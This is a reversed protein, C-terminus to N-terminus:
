QTLLFLAVGGDPDMQSVTFPASTLKTGITTHNWLDRVAVTTARAPWGTAAWCEEGCTVDMPKPGTNLFLMAYSGDYLARGWVNTTSIGGRTLCSGSSRHKISGTSNFGNFSWQQLAPVATAPACTEM